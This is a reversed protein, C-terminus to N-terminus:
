DQGGNSGGDGEQAGEKSSATSQGSPTPSVLGVATAAEIERGRAAINEYYDGSGFETAAESGTMIGLSMAEKYARLTREPEIQPMGPGRWRCKVYARRTIEDDFFRPADIYGRAVGESIVAEYFPQNFDVIMGARKQIVSQWTLGTEARAASFSNPFTHTLFGKSVGVSPGIMELGAGIYQGFDGTPATSEVAQIKDGPNAVQVIGPGLEVDNASQAFDRAEEDSMLAGLEAM